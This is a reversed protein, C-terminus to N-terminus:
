CDCMSYCSNDDDCTYISNLPSQVVDPNQDNACMEAKSIGGAWPMLGNPISQTPNNILYGLVKLYNTSLANWLEVEGSRERTPWGAIIFSAAIAAMRVASYVSNGNLDLFQQYEEDTFLPYFVSQEIDGILLRIQQIPTLAM